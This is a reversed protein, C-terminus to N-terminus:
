VAPVAGDGMKPTRSLMSAFHGSGRAVRFAERLLGIRRVLVDSGRDALTVTFFYTGVPVRNRRYLVM